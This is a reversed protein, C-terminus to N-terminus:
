IFYIFSYLNVFSVCKGDKKKVKFMQFDGLKRKQNNSMTLENEYDESDYDYVSRTILKEKKYLIGSGEPSDSNKNSVAKSNFQKVKDITLSQTKM